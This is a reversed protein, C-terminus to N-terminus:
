NLGEKLNKANQEMISLYTAGNQLEKRSVNHCSHLMLMKIGTDEAIARSVKPDTLEEYFIVPIQKERIEDIIQTIVRVSPETESSCSDFAAVYQIGYRKAFYHLAFRGGFVIERRKATTVIEQLQADLADLQALYNQANSQYYARNPEDAQSLADAINQVMIKANQPDTWIHPDFGGHDHDEHHEHEGQEEHTEEEADLTIGQSVDLAKGNGSMGAIIKEAWPEMYKGTYVFLDCANIKMIDAPTPEFSHSEVGPPLLLTVEARDGAIARAFDYQPFLTAVVQIRNKGDEQKPVPACGALIQLCLVLLLFFVGIKKRM